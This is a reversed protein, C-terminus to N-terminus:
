LPRIQLQGHRKVRALVKLEPKRSYPIPVKDKRRPADKNKVIERQGVAAM